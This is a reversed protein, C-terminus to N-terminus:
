ESYVGDLTDSIESEAIYNFTAFNKFGAVNTMSKADNM